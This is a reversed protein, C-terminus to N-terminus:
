AQFFYWFNSFYWINVSLIHVIGISKLSLTAVRDDISFLIISKGISQQCYNQIQYYCGLTQLKITHIYLQHLKMHVYTKAGYKTLDVSALM